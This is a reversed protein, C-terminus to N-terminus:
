VFEYSCNLEVYLDENKEVYNVKGERSLWGLALYIYQQRYGTMIELEGVPLSGREALLQWILGADEGIMKKIM